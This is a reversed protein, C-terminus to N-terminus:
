ATAATIMTVLSLSRFSGSPSIRLRTGTPRKFGPFGRLRGVAPANRALGAKPTPPCQHPRMVGFWYRPCWSESGTASAVPLVKARGAPQYILFAGNGPGESISRSWALVWTSQVCRLPELRRQLEGRVSRVDRSHTGLRYLERM